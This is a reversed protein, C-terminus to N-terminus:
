KVSTGELPEQFALLTSNLFGCTFEGGDKRAQQHTEKGSM